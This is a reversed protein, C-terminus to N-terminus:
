AIRQNEKLTKLVSILQQERINDELIEQQSNEDSYLYNEPNKSGFHSFLQTRKNKKIYNLTLNKAITFIYAHFNDEMKYRTLSEFIKIFVDQTLSQAEEYDFIMKHIFNIIPRKYRNIIIEYNQIKGEKVSRIIEDDSFM